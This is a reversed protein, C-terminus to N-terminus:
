AYIDGIQSKSESQKLVNELKMQGVLITVKVENIIAYFAIFNSKLANYLVVFCCINIKM